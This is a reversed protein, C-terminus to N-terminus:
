RCAILTRYSTKIRFSSVSTQDAFSFTPFIGGGYGAPNSCFLPDGYSNSWVTIVLLKRLILSEWSPPARTVLVACSNHAGEFGSNGLGVTATWAKPTSRICKRWIGTHPVCREANTPYWPGILIFFAGKLQTLLLAHRVMLCFCCASFLSFACYLCWCGYTKASWSSLMKKWFLTTVVIIGSLRWPCLWGVWIYM